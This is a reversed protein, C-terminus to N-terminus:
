KTLDQPLAPLMLPQPAANMRTLDCQQANVRWQNRPSSGLALLESSFDDPAIASM